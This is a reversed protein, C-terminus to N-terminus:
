KNENVTFAMQLLFRNEVLDPLLKKDLDNEKIIGMKKFMAMVNYYNPISIKCAERISERVDTAFLLKPILSEDKVSKCIEHRKVLFTALIDIHKDGLKSIPNLPKIFLLYKKYFDFMGSCPINVASSGKAM